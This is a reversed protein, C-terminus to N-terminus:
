RTLINNIIFKYKGSGARPISDVLQFEVNWKESKKKVINRITDLQLGDFNKDPVIKIM